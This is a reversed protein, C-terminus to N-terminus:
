VDFGQGEGGDCAVAVLIDIETVFWWVAIVFIIPSLLVVLIGLFFDLIVDSLKM